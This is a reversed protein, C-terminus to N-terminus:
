VPNPFQACFDRYSSPHDFDRTLPDNCIAELVDTELIHKDPPAGIVCRYLNWLRGGFKAARELDFLLRDRYRQNDFSFGFVENFNVDSFFQVPKNSKLILDLSEDRFLVDGCLVHTRHAWHEQNALLSGCKTRRHKSEVTPPLRLLERTNGIVVHPCGREKLQRLTREILPEGWISVFHKSPLTTGNVRWRTSQGAALIIAVQDTM